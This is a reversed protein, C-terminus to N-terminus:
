VQITERVIGVLASVAMTADLTPLNFREYVERLEQQRWDLLEDWHSPFIKGGDRDILRAQRDEETLNLYFILDPTMMPQSVQADLLFGKAQRSGLIRHTAVTRYISSDLTICPMEAEMIRAYQMYRLNLAKFYNFRTDPNAGQNVARKQVRWSKGFSYPSLLSTVAVGGTAAAVADAVTTKGVGDLGEFAIVPM